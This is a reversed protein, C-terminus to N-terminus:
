PLASRPGPVSPEVPVAVNVVEVSEIDHSNLDASSATVNSLITKEAPPETCIL